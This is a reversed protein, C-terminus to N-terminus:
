RVKYKRALRAAREADGAKLTEAIRRAEAPRYEEGYVAGDRRRLRWSGSKGWGGIDVPEFGSDRIIGAVIRKADEDGGALFMAARESAPRQAAEAQFGATLTNYAEVLRAGKARRANFEAASISEPLEV